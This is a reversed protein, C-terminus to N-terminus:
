KVILSGRGDGIMMVSSPKVLEDAALLPSIKKKFYSRVEQDQEWGGTGQLDSTFFSPSGFLLPLSILSFGNVAVTIMRGSRRPMEGILEYVDEPTQLGSDFVRKRRVDELFRGSFGLSRIQEAAFAESDPFAPNHTTGLNARLRSETTEKLLYSSDQKYDFNFAVKGLFPDQSLDAVSAATVVSAASVEGTDRYGLQVDVIEVAERFRLFREPRKMSVAAIVSRWIQYNHIEHFGELAGQLKFHRERESVEAREQLTAMM